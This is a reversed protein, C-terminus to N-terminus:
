ATRMLFDKLRVSYGWENDYWGFTKCMNGEAQTLLSDLTVSYNSASYDSSVLPLESVGVIGKMAGDAVTKFAQNVSAPTGEKKTKVVLDILSVKAVPVRIAMCQVRGEIAPMVQDIMRSAGTTTPIINIAAARARRLDKREVDLLVQTNTYAHITTMFGQEIEFADHLVKLMPMLANTTCSALSVVRDKEKDFQDDNVGPVITHVWGKCPATILVREAGADIHVLCRGEEAFAGSSDVVWDINYKGWNVKLPDKDAALAISQGDVVMENDRLEVEGKFTGMLSDYKFMHAVAEINAPGVNILVVNLKKRAEPDALVVRLFNRGIRGFGNIAIRM